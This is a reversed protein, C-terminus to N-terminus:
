AHPGTGNGHGGHAPAHLAEFLHQSYVEFGLMAEVYRRGDPM